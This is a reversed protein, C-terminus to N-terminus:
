SPRDASRGTDSERRERPQRYLFHREPRAADSRGSKPPASRHLSSRDAAPQADSARTPPDGPPRSDAVRDFLFVKRSNGGSTTESVGPDKQRTPSPPQLSPAPVLRSADLEIRRLREAAGVFFWVLVGMPIGVFPSGVGVFAISIWLNVAAALVLPGSETTRTERVASAMQRAAHWSLRGFFFLGFVGFEVMLRGLDGDPALYDSYEAPDLIFSPAFGTKGLGGGLPHAAMFDLGLSTPWWFRYFVNAVNVTALRDVVGGGTSWAALAAAASIVGLLVAGLAFKRRIALLTLCGAVATIAASRSGSLIMGYGIPLMAAALLAREVRSARPALFLASGILLATAMTAGFAGSSIFTSFRRVHFGGEDDVYGQGRYRQAFYPDEKMMQLVEADSQMAGYVATLLAFLVIVLYYGHLQSRGRTIQFGLGYLLSAFIWGRLTSLAVLVPPMGPLMAWPLYALCMGHFALLAKTTPGEPFFRRVSGVRLFVVVLALILALDYAFTTAPSRFRLKLWGHFFGIGLAVLVVLNVFSDQALIAGLRWGASGDSPTPESRAARPGASTTTEQTM